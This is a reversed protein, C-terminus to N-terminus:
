NGQFTDEPVNLVDDFSPLLGPYRSYRLGETGMAVLVICVLFVPSIM